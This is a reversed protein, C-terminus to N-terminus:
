DALLLLNLFTIGNWLGHMLVSSALRGSRWRLWGLGLGLLFLPALEGISLHALAFVAASALVATAGGWARGLVPLLVGRFLTEEFLPALVVATVGFCALAAPDGSTLVLELLPNSGGADGWIREILWSVLVVAPLVMLLCAAAQGLAQLLPQWRWQLWGGPPVAGAPLLLVVLILLPASTLALYLGMVTLGQNLSAPLRLSTLAAALLPQALHPMLVEGLLVFGGAILLIVDIMSLPPGLLPPPDKARGSAQLWIRRVLLILGILVMPLPLLTIALLRWTSPDPTLASCEKVSAALQECSLRRLLASAQWPQLLEERAGADLREGAILAALLPRRPLDITPLLDKLAGVEMGPDSGSRRLLALELRRVAPAPGAAAALQRELERTLDGRPDEGSVVTRLPPPVTDAALVALEMQRLSLQDLVSPRELSAILGQFWILASFVLCFLATLGKWGPAPRLNAGPPRAPPDPANM